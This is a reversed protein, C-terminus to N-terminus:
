LHPIYSTWRVTQFAGPPLDFLALFALGILCFRALIYVIPGFYYAAVRVAKSLMAFIRVTRSSEPTREGGDEMGFLPVHVASPSHPTTWGKRFANEWARQYLDILIGFLAILFPVIVIVITSWRWILLEIHLHFHSNWALFHIAGFIMGIFCSLLRIELLEGRTASIGYFMPVYRAGQQIKACEFMDQLPHVLSLFQPVVLRDYVWGMNGALYILNGRPMMAYTGSTASYSGFPQSNPITSTFSTSAHHLNSATSAFSTSAQHLNSAASAFSGRPPLNGSATSAFSGRPQSLSAVSAFGGSSSGGYQVNIQVQVQCNVNLPKDWWLVYTIINLIAFALTVVELETILLHQQFRALCELIFWSTQLVVLGKSLFDGKSRDDLQGKSIRLDAIRVKGQVLYAELFDPNIVEQHGDAFNGALAGMQVFHGHTTTWEPKFGNNSLYTNVKKAIKRAGYWQRLAWWIVAEPAILAYFTIKLRGYIRQWNTAKPDPVNPHLASYVCAFITLACGRVLDFKTRELPGCACPSSRGFLLTFPTSSFVEPGLPTDMAHAKYASLLLLISLM